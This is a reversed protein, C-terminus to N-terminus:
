LGVAHMDTCHACYAQSSSSHVAMWAICVTKLQQQAHMPPLKRVRTNQLFRHPSSTLHPWPIHYMCVPLETALVSIKVPWLEQGVLWRGLKKSIELHTKQQSKLDFSHRNHKGTLLALQYPM